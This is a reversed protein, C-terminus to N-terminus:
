GAAPRRSGLWLTAALLLWLLFFKSEQAAWGAASGEGLVKQVLARMAPAGTSWLAWGVGVAPAWPAALRGEAVAVTAVVLAPLAFVLHHEYTFVPVLLMWVLVASAQAAQAFPEANPRFFAAAMAGLGAVSIVGSAARATASLQNNEGPWIQDLVNPLSHNAFMSIQIELGNYAGSSFSPLIETYFRRQEDIGLLPLTLVSSVVAWGCAAGAAVWRRRLLWWAVLLAPSMKWMCATGLLIGALWPRRDQQHLAAAILALVGFNAQGLEQSYAVGSSLAVALALVVGVAPGLPRWASWLLAVAVLLALENLWFWLDFGDVLSMSPAWAVSWLFPPPYFFPHVSDRTGDAQAAEALLAPDYPDQGQQAVVAAYYYSAFDRGLTGEPPPTRPPVTASLLHWLLSFALILLGLAQPHKSM